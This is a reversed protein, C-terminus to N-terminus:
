GGTKARINEDDEDLNAKLASTGCWALQRPWGIQVPAADM